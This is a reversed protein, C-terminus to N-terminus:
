FFSIEGKERPGIEDITASKKQVQETLPEEGGGGM